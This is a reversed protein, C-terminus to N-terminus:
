HVFYQYILGIQEILIISGVGTWVILSPTNLKLSERKHWIWWIGIIPLILVLTYAAINVGRLSNVIRESDQPTGADRARMENRLKANEKKLEEKSLKKKKAM